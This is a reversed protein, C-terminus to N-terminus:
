RKNKENDSKCATARTPIPAETGIGQAAENNMARSKFCEFTYLDRYNKTAQATLVIGNRHRYRLQRVSAHRTFYM